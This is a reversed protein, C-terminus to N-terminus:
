NRGLLQLGSNTPYIDWKNLYLIYLIELLGLSNFLLLIVFWVLQRKSASKWLALGKWFISWLIFPLVMQPQSLFQFLQQNINEM